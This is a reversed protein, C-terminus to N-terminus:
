SDKTNKTQKGQQSTKLFCFCDSLLLCRFTKNLYRVQVLLFTEAHRIKIVSTQRATIIEAFDQKSYGVSSLLLSGRRSAAEQGGARLWASHPVIFRPKGREEGIVRSYGSDAPLAAM